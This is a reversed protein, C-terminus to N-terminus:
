RGHGPGFGDAENEDVVLEIWSSFSLETWELGGNELYYVQDEVLYYATPFQAAFCIADKFSPWLGSNGNNRQLSDWAWKVEKKSLLDPAVSFILLRGIQAANAVEAYFQKLAFPLVVSNALEFEEIKKLPAPSTLRVCNSAILADRM